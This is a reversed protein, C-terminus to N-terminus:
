SAVTDSQPAPQMQTTALGSARRNLTAFAAPISAIFVLAYGLIQLLGLGTGYAILGMLPGSVVLLWAAWRPIARARALAIGLLVYALMHGFVWGVAFTFTLWNTYYHHEITMFIPDNGIQAMGEITVMQGAILGWVISGAWGCAIGLTALWPSRKMALLGLGLYSLPYIYPVVLNLVLFLQMLPPTMTRFATFVALSSGNDPCQADGAGTPCIGFWLSLALPALVICLALCARHLQRYVPAVARQQESQYAFAM